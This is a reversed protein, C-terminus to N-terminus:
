KVLRSAIFQSVFSVLKLHTLRTIRKIGSAITTGTGSLNLSKLHGFKVLHKASLDTIRPNCSLDLTRLLEPGSNLLRHPLTWSSIGIDTLSNDKLCLCKLSKMKGIWQLYEHSDGLRCHGLDLKTLSNFCQLFKLNENIMVTSHRLALHKLVLSRYAVCFINLYKPKKHFVQIQLAEVFLDNGIVDPFDVLSEVLHLNKAIFNKCIQYLNCPSERCSDIKMACTPNHLIAIPDKTAETALGNRQGYGPPFHLVGNRDRVYVLSPDEFYESNDVHTIEFHM